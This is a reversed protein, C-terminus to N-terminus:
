IFLIVCRGNKKEQPPTFTEPKKWGAYNQFVKPFIEPFFWSRTIKFSKDMPWDNRNDNSLFMGRYLYAMIHTDAGRSISVLAAELVAEVSSSFPHVM